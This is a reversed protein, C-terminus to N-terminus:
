NPWVLQLTFELNIEPYSITVNSPKTSAYDMLNFDRYDPPGLMLDQGLPPEDQDGFGIRINKELKIYLNEADFNWTLNGQNMKVASRYWDRYDTLDEFPDPIKSKQMVFFVDALSNSDNNPYEPDWTNNINSFSLLQLGTIKIANGQTVNVTVQKVQSEINGEKIAKFYLTNNGLKNFRFFLTKSSGFNSYWGAETVFNDYSYLLGTIPEPSTITITFNEDISVNTNSALANITFTDVPTSTSNPAEQNSDSSCSFAMISSIFYIIRKM